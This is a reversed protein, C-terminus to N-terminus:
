HDTAAGSRVRRGSATTAGEGIRLAARAVLRQGERLGHQLMKSSVRCALGAYTTSTPSLLTLTFRCWLGLPAVSCELMMDLTSVFSINSFSLVMLVGCPPVKPM